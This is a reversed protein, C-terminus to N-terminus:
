AATMSLWALYQFTKVTSAIMYLEVTFNYSRDHCRETTPRSRYFEVLREENLPPACSLNSKWSTTPFVIAPFAVAMRREFTSRLWAFFTKTTKEKVMLPAAFNQRRRVANVRKQLPDIYACAKSYLFFSVLLFIRTASVVAIHM